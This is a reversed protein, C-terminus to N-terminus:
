DANGRRKGAWHLLQASGSPFTDNPVFIDVLCKSSLWTPFSPQLIFVSIPLARTTGPLGLLSEHKAAVDREPDKQPFNKSPFAINVM